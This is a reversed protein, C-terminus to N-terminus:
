NYDIIVLCLINTSDVSIKSQDDIIISKQCMVVSYYVKLVKLIM